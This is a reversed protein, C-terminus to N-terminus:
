RSRRAGENGNRWLYDIDPQFATQEPTNTPRAHQSRFPGASVTFRCGSRRTRRRRPLLRGVCRRNRSRAGRCRDRRLMVVVRRLRRWGRGHVPRLARMRSKVGGGGRSSFERLAGWRGKCVATPLSPLGHECDLPCDMAVAKGIPVAGQRLGRM